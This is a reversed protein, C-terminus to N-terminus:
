QSECRGNPVPNATDLTLLQFANHGLREELFLEFTDSLHGLLHRAGTVVRRLQGMLQCAVKVRSFAAREVVHAIKADRLRPAFRRLRGMMMGAM